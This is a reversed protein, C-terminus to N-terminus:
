QAREKPFQQAHIWAIGRALGVFFGARVALNETADLADNLVTMALVGGELPNRQEALTQVLTRIVAQYERVPGPNLTDYERRALRITVDPEPLLELANFGPQEEHLHSEIRELRAVIRDFELDQASKAHKSKARVSKRTM